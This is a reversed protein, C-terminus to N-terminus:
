RGTNEDTQDAHTDNLSKLQLLFSCNQGPDESSDQWYLWGGVQEDDTITLASSFIAERPLPLPVQQGDRWLFAQTGGEPGPPDDSWGVVTGHNNVDTAQCSSDGPLPTLIQEGEDPIFLYAQRKGRVTIRGVAMGQDNINALHVAREALKRREWSGDDSRKWTFLHNLYQPIPAEVIEVALSAAAYNGDDSIVTHASTLLPNFPEPASLLVCKWQEEDRQWLCPLLRPPDRGTLYGSVTSASADIDFACSGRFGDPLELLVVRGSSFEWICAQQNGQPHGMPRTAFGVAWGNESLRYVERHTFSKPISLSQQLDDKRLMPVPSLASTPEVIEREMLMLGQQSLDLVRSIGPPEVFRVLPLNEEPAACVALVILGHTVWM